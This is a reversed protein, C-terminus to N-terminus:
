SNDINQFKVRVFDNPYLRNFPFLGDYLTSPSISIISFILLSSFFILKSLLYSIFRSLKNLSFANLKIFFSGKSYKLNYM